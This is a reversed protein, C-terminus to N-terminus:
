LFYILTPTLGPPLIPLPFHLLSSPHLPFILFCFLLSRHQSQHPQCYPARTIWTWMQPWLVSLHSSLFSPSSSPLSPPFFVFMTMTRLSHTVSKIKLLLFIFNLIFGKFSKDLMMHCLSAQDWTKAFLPKIGPRWMELGLEEWQRKEWFAFFDHTRLQGFELM